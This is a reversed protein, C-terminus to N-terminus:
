RTRNRYVVKGPTVGLNRGVEFAETGAPKKGGTLRQFDDLFNQAGRVFNMGAEEVTRQLVQPNTAIFNSPSFVDLWQRAAFEVVNEHQRTVGRVGTTANYWWQQTLLFSQHILNYPWTHWAEGDFRHDQPLPEICPETASQAGTCTGAYLALKLSKKAAKEVLQQQKGPASALHSAWDLYAGALAVPSLGLTFRALGAHVARDQIESLATSMYSDRQFGGSAAAAATLSALNATTPLPLAPYLKRIPTPASM